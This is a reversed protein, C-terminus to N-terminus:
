PHKIGVFGISLIHKKEAAVKDQWTDHKDIVVCDHSLQCLFTLEHLERAQLKIAPTSNHYGYNHETDDVSTHFCSVIHDFRSYSRRM